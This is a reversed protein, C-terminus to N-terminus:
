DRNITRNPTKMGFMIEGEPFSCDTYNVLIQEGAEIDRSAYAKAFDGTENYIELLNVRNPANGANMLASDDMTATVITGFETADAKTYYSWHFLMDCAFKPPMNIMFIRYQNPHTFSGEKESSWVLTGNPIREKAYLARGMKPHLDVYTPVRIPNDEINGRITSNEKGVVTVYLKRMAIWDEQTPIDNKFQTLCGHIRFFDHRTGHTANVRYTRVKELKLESTAMMSPIQSTSASNYRAAMIILIAAIWKVPRRGRPRKPGNGTPNTRQQTANKTNKKWM